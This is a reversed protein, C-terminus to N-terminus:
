HVVYGLSDAKEIFARIAKLVDNAANRVEEATANVPSRRNRFLVSEVGRFQGAGRTFALIVFHVSKSDCADISFRVKDRDEDDIHACLNVMGTNNERLIKRIDLQENISVSHRISRRLEEKTM